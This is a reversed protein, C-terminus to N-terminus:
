VAAACSFTNLIDTTTRCTSIRMVELYKMNEPCCLDLCWELSQHHCGWFIFTLRHKTCNIVKSGMQDCCGLPSALNTIGPLPHLCLLSPPMKPGQPLQMLHVLLIGKINGAQYEIGRIQIGNVQYRSLLTCKGEGDSLSKRCNQAKLCPM